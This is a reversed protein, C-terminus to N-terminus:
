KSQNKRGGGGGGGGGGYNKGKVLCRLKQINHYALKVGYKVRGKHM